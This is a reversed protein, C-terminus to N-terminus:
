RGVKGYTLVYYIVEEYLTGVVTYLYILLGDTSPWSFRSLFHRYFRDVGCM